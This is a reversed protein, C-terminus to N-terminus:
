MTHPAKQLRRQSIPRRKGFVLADLSLVGPGMLLLLVAMVLYLSALEYSGGKWGPPAFWPDQSHSIVYAGIMTGIVGLAALPTLLGLILLLGGGFESLAALAQLLDPIASPAGPKDMWGLPNQIKRWGHMILGTGMVLRLILLGLSGRGTVFDGFVQSM